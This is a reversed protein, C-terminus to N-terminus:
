LSVKFKLNVRELCINKQDESEKTKRENILKGKQFTIVINIKMVQETTLGPFLHKLESM